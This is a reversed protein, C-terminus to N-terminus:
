KKLVLILRPEGDGYYNEVRSEIVFGLSQYLHLAPLNDPHTVLDIQKIDKLEELILNLAQRAIGQNHFRPDIALGSIYVHNPDKYEYSIDGVTEGNKEILYVINNKIEEQWENENTEASYTKSGAVSKEIEVLKSIDNLGVKKLIITM